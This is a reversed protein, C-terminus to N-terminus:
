PGEKTVKVKPPHMPLFPLLPSLTYELIGCLLQSANKQRWRWHRIVDCCRVVGASGKSM